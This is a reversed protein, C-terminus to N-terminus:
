HSEAALNYECGLTLSRAILQDSASIMGQSRHICDFTTRLVERLHWITERSRYFCRESCRLTSRVSDLSSRHAQAAEIERLALLAQLPTDQQPSGGDAAPGAATVDTTCDARSVVFEDWRGSVRVREAVLPNHM